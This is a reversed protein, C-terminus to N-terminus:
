CAVPRPVGPCSEPVEARAIAAAKITNWSQGGVIRHHATRVASGPPAHDQASSWAAYGEFSGASDASALYPVLAALM